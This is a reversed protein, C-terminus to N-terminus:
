PNGQSRNEGHGWCQRQGLGATRWVFPSIPGPLISRCTRPHWGASPRSQGYGTLRRLLRETLAGIALGAVVDSTWHALLLVRTGVLGAGALWVANRMNRPLRSAASALAGVHLAHGSPFADMSNGSLPVGRWHGRVTLRDPRRQDFIKKLLHPLASAVLTTILVHDATSREERPQRRSYIWWAAALATLIHEDAGWTLAEATEEAPADTRAAIANAIRVDGATPPITFVAMPLDQRSLAKNGARIGVGSGAKLNGVLGSNGAADRQFGAGELRRL